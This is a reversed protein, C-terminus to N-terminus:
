SRVLGDGNEGSYSGKYEKVLACAEEAIARM